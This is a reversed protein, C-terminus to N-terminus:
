FIEELKRSMETVQKLGAFSASGKLTHVTRFIEDILTEEEPAEELQILNLNLQDLHEQAENMFDKLMRSMIQNDLDQFNNEDSM